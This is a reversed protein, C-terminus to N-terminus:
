LHLCVDAKAIVLNTGSEIACEAVSVGQCELVSPWVLM